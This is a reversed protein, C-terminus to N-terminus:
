LPPLPPLDGLPPLAELESEPFGWEWRTKGGETVKRSEVGLKKKVTRLTAFGIGAAEAEAEVRAAPVAGNLLLDYLWREARRSPGDDEAKLRCLDEATLNSPGDWIVGVGGEREAIRYGLSRGRPGHNVKEMALVARDPDDPHRGAVLLSRGAAAIGISGCGRYLSKGRDSKNLHRVFLFCAGTVAAVRAFPALARRVAEHNNAALTPFHASIPDIIVLGVPHLKRIRQVLASLDRPFEAVRATRRRRSLGGFFSVRERVGGAALFRPLLTDEVVDDGNAIIVRYGAPNPPPSGDPMPRGATLRAALDLTVYTKGVGPDGDLVALSGFALYPRWLFDVADVPADGDTPIELTDDDTM